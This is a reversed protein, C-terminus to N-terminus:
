KQYDGKLCISVHGKKSPTAISLIYEGAAVRLDGSFPMNELAEGFFPSLRERIFGYAERGTELEVRAFGSPAESFTRDYRLLLTLDRFKSIEGHMRALIESDFTKVVLEPDVVGFLKDVVAALNFGAM